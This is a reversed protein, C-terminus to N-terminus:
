KKPAAPPKAAPTLDLYGTTTAKRSPAGDPNLLRASIFAYTMETGGSNPMAGAVVTEGDWLVISTTLNRSHFRPQRLHIETTKGDAQTKGIGVDDWDLLECLEPVFTLDITYGDPGVTPTVNHIFGVERTEFSGPVANLADAVGNSSTTAEFETPYIVEDCGKSQANVGSRTVVKSTGAIKGKGERWLAKIEEGTPAARDSKRAVEEILKLDFAVYTVDIEVQNPVVTLAQLVREFIETNEPTNRVILQSITANYSISSGPPFPVGMDEFFKKLDRPQSMEFPDGGMTIFEGRNTESGGERTGVIEAISPQVPYLRTVMAPDAAVAASTWLAAALLIAFPKM